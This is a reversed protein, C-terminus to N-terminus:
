IKLPKREGCLQTTLYPLSSKLTHIKTLCEEVWLVVTSEKAGQSVDHEGKQQEKFVQIHEQKLAKENDTGGTQFM